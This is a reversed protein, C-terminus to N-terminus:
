FWNWKRQVYKAALDMDIKEQQKQLEKEAAENDKLERQKKADQEEEWLGNM